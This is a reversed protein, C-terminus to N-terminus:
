ADPHMRFDYAAPLPDATGAAAQYDAWLTGLSDEGEKLDSIELGRRLIEGAREVAGTAVAARCEQLRIRGHGRQVSDLRDILELAHAARGAALLAGLTENSLRWDGPLLDHAETYLLAAADADEALLALSRLSWPNPTAATSERWATRAGDLDGAAYRVLGLQLLSHWDTQKELLETWQPGVVTDAPPDCIPLRGDLLDLWPQQAASLTDDAFPTGPAPPLGGTRVELAGWGSGISLREVPALEAWGAATSDSKELEELSIVTDNVAAVAKDWPGHAAVPDVAAPGYAETWAWTEGAPLPLHELQTRALGAQIEAYPQDGLWDQWRHGGRGSGWFFQKRGRLRSTSAQLLGRGTEDVAAIWPASNEPIDYFYDSSTGGRAPYGDTPGPIPEKSLTAGYGFHWASNAPAIVRTTDAEPVAINSWWYVPVTEAHPNHLRPRVFLVPSAAPLWADLQVVLRRMREYEWMRLVPFGDGEVRAAHLPACTLPWHGTTGLNWEVGGAFWANRLALNALQLVSPRHLLEAGTRRDVLSWLRGGYTLLFTATLRENELVAVPLDTSIPERVYGDQAHYPLLNSVKGYEIDMDHGSVTAHIDTGRLLPWPSDPGPATVPM